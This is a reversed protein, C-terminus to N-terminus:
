GQRSERSSLSQALEEVLSHAAQVHRSDLRQHGYRAEYFVDTIERVLDAARRNRAALSGAYALPPQWDPKPVGARRLVRLMDLYFGLQRLMRQYEAGRLHQLQLTRRIALSRRMLKILAIVAIVLALAVTGMWIYGGPGVNFFANVREMWNRVRELATAFRVSWSQNFSTALQSQVTSDFNAISSAWNGEFREYVWRVQDAMTASVSHISALTAPPTPDFTEWRFPGTGVESWAHANSELVLYERMTEDYEYAVYGVVLRAPIGKSLCLATLASAFFECHGRRTTTLFRVIPDSEASAYVVNSLDTTYTFEGSHLWDTLAQAVQRNWKWLEAENAPRETPLGAIRLRADALDRLAARDEPRTFGFRSTARLPSVLGQLSTASPQTQARVTYSLVRRANQDTRVTQAAADYIVPVGGGEIQVADPAYLTFLPHIGDAPRNLIVRQTIRPGVVQPQEGLPTLTASAHLVQENEPHSPWRRWRGAGDYRALVAGRLRAPEDLRQREGNEDIFQVSMVKTRSETIRGGQNLDVNWNFRTQRPAAPSRMMGLMGAGVERPYSVFIVASVLLGALGVAIAQSRFRWVPQLGTIPKLPPVLRYGPPIAGTRAEREREYAAFLQYQLLVYLGLAVYLVLMLGVVLDNTQLCATMMLLLSLTLLHAYDRTKRREYLKILTLWVAFRGLVGLVDDRHQFLDVFVNLSVAIVLINSVWRPLIRGRPGETIYWSIAALTGAVLLLGVSRQATCLAAISLLVLGFALPPFTRLLKM